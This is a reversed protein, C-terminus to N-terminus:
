FLNRILDFLQRGGLGGVLGISLSAIRVQAKVLEWRTKVVIQQERRVLGDQERASELAAVAASADAALAMAQHANLEVAAIRSRDADRDRIAQAVAGNTKRVEGLIEESRAKGERRHEGIERSLSNLHGEFTAMKAAQEIAAQVTPLALPDQNM